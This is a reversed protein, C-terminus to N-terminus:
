REVADLVEKLTALGRHVLSKATGVPCGMESAVRALPLDLYFRLVLAVRQRGLLQWLATWTEDLEPALEIRPAEAQHDHETARRRLHGRALNVVTTRLYGGLNDVEGRRPVLRAFAEQVVEEAITRDGVLLFALRRMGDAEARYLADLEDDTTPTTIGM